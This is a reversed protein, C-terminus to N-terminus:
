SMHESAAQTARSDDIEHESQSVAVPGRCSAWPMRQMHGVSAPVIALVRIRTPVLWWRVRWCGVRWWEFRGDGAFWISGILGAGGLAEFVTGFVVLTKAVAAADAAAALLCGM